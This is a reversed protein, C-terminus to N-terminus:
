ESAGRRGYYTALGGAVADAYEEFINKRSVGAINRRGSYDGAQIRAFAERSNMVYPEIYVVPCTYLRNALLNRAYVYPNPGVKIANSQRYVYAPLGTERAMVGALAETVRLEEGASRDLLKRLMDFRQDEYSLEGASWGGTVLFHLHNADVLIPRNESGWDEANFHLCIVLDPQLSKNVIQARRRIEGVRYFLLKSESALAAATAPKGRDRLSALAEKRLKEPRLSTVPAPKSRTLSVDAGLAKLKTALKKAVLLTMDGETVPQTKGVRFWREEMKAWSGGIHGPDLAIRLGALPKKSSAALRARPRWFTAVPKRSAADAAFKLIFPPRGPGTTIRASEGSVEMVGAAAGGPAYLSDLLRVFEERTITEQYKDLAAWDPPPALPTLRGWAEGGMFIGLGMLIMGALFGRM